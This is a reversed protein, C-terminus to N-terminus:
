RIDNASVGTPLLEPDFARGSFARMHGATQVVLGPEHINLPQRGVQSERQVRAAHSYQEFYTGLLQRMDPIFAGQWAVGFVRGAPSVYERVVTGAPAKLEHVAYANTKTVRLNASMHEQDAQVSDVTNGLAAFSRLSLALTVLIAALWWVWTANLLKAQISIKMTGTKDQSFSNRKV